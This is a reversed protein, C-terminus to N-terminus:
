AFLQLEGSVQHIDNKNPRPLSNPFLGTEDVLEFEYATLFMAVTAKIELKAVKMGSCPHRGKQDEQRGVEFRSPDFKHPDKYIEPDLHVDALSYALYDGKKIIKGDIKIDELVNRRLATSNQTLRLTERIFLDMTPINDEWASIPISSLRHHVPETSEPAYKDLLKNIESAVRAKWEPYSALYVMVWYSHIGTNIIGAYIVKLVFCHITLGDCGEQLLMDIAEASSAGAKRRLDVYHDITNFMAATAERQAKKASGPFWSLLLSLLTANRELKEFNDSLQTVAEKDEALESCTAMRVIMQFALDYLEKLPNIQGEQGWLLMRRNIDAFLLPLIAQLRDKRLITLLRKNFGSNDDEAMATTNELMDIEPSGGMLKRYAAFIDLNKDGFIVMRSAEGKMAVVSHHLVPFRFMQQGTAKFHNWLFDYRHNFFSRSATLFSLGGLRTVETSPQSSPVLYLAAVVVLFAALAVRTIFAPEALSVVSGATPISYAFM